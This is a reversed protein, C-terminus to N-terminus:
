RVDMNLTGSTLSDGTASLKINGKKGNNQLVVLCKGFFAKRQHAKFSELSIESGNDVGAIYGAGDVNFYIENDANPCLNGDKDVIEVTVFCLDRGDAMIIKKDPTLRIAAPEGATRITQKGVMKGDKRAIVQVEGPEFVCHWIAHFRNETKRSVGQSKGNIFLELEDASNYYAWMDIQQGKTWNWHPFLHLVPKDTWESQYMYYIDKPFGALDVIGFYSSRAPWGYPAPEGLYDFGTWIFQGSIYPHHKVIDWTAEHLAGHGACFNDYSSCMFSPDNSGSAITVSDSPMKYFGRTEFASVSESLLFPKDPFNQPVQLTEKLHYNFGIIDLAGSQFFNNWISPEDCAATVPRTTDLSKVIEALKQVMLVSIRLKNEKVQAVENDTMRFVNKAEELSITDNGNNRQEPIENGISWMLVSAHNRDRKILDTLDQRYWKDFYNSYDFTTKKRHWMDFAEDMVIFGMTDCMALLEPAPPNHTCRIANCGMEKLIKLQRYLAAEHIAAGLCGLDHHNCVGNLKLSEGNLSFGTQADFKFTRIGFTSTYNDVIRNGIQVMTKVTYIHPHTIGWLSPNAITVTQVNEAAPKGDLVLNGSETAVLKGSSNLISNTIRASGKQGNENKITVRINVTAQASSVTPTTIQTGWHAVHVDETETWYVHRYIGCGSYWRSNPQKENDVKVAIVNKGNCNLYPTLEYQFSIYGYPREGLLHGNLFVKSNMYVGDFDIFYHRGVPTGHLMFTKRYWGIGGPLAGGGTGAPNNQSFSGEVAWDHPLNLLRWNSDDFSVSSAEDSAQLSFRWGSDFNSHVRPLSVPTKAMCLTAFFLSIVLLKNKM